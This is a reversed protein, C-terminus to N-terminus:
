DTECNAKTMEDTDNNCSESTSLEAPTSEIKPSVVTSSNDTSENSATRDLEDCLVTIGENMIDSPPVPVSGPTVNAFPENTANSEMAIDEVFSKKEANLDSTVEVFSKSESGRSSFESHPSDGNPANEATVASHLDRHASVVNAQSDTGANPENRTSTTTVTPTAKPVVQIVHKVVTLPGSVVHTGTVKDVAIVQPQLAISQISIPVTSITPSQPLAGPDVIRIPIVAVHTPAGIFPVTNVRPTSRVEM